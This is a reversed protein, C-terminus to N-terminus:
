GPLGRFVQFDQVPRAWGTGRAPATGVPASRQFGSAQPKAAAPQYVALPPPVNRMRQYEGMIKAVYNQTEAYPPIGGYKRVAGPGANYAALALHTNGGFEQMMQALYKIGGLINEHPNWPDRVGMQAATGPMLQMLGMAGARSLANPNFCSEQKMVAHVLREDLGYRQSYLRVANIHPALKQELQAASQGGCHGRSVGLHPVSTNYNATYNPAPPPAKNVRKQPAGYKAVLTYKKGKKPVNTLWRTGDKDVYTYVAAEANSAGLSVSGIVSLALASNLYGPNKPTKM